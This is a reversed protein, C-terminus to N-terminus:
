RGDDGDRLPITTTVAAAAAAVAAEAAVDDFPTVLVPGVTKASAVAPAGVAELAEVTAPYRAWERRAADLLAVGLVLSASLQRWPADGELTWAAM